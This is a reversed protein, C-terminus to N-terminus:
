FKKEFGAFEEELKWQSRRANMAMWFNRARPLFKERARVIM